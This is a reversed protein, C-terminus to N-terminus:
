SVYINSAWKTTKIDRLQQSRTLNVSKLQVLALKIEPTENIDHAPIPKVTKSNLLVVWCCVRGQKGVLKNVLDSM